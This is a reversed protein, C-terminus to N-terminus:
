ARRSGADRLDILVEVTSATAFVLATGGALVRAKDGHERLLALAEDLSGPQLFTTLQKM